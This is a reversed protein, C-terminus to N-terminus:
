KSEYEKKIDEIIEYLGYKTKFGLENFSKTVDLTDNTGWEEKEPLLEYNESNSFIKCFALVIDINSTLYGSSINFIGSIGREIAIDLARIVDKVYILERKAKGRGYVPIKEKRCSKELLMNWFPNLVGRTLDLGCVEPMRFIAISLNYARAYFDALVESCTKSVGYEDFPKMRENEIHNSCSKEYVSKTSTFIIHKIGLERCVQLVIGTLTINIDYDKMHLERQEKPMGLSAMHIVKDCGELVKHLSNVTYDCRVYNIGMKNAPVITEKRIPIIFEYKNGLDRLLYQGIFGTGGTVGIRM